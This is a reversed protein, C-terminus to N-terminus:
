PSVPDQNFGAGIMGTPPCAMSCETPISTDKSSELTQRISAVPLITTSAFILFDDRRSRRVRAYARDISQAPRDQPRVMTVIAESQASCLRSRSREAPSGAHSVPATRAHELILRTMLGVLAERADKPLDPWNPASAAIRASFLGMEQSALRQKRWNGIAKAASKRAM